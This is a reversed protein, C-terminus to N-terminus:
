GRRTLHRRTVTQLFGFVAADTLAKEDAANVGAPQAALATGLATHIDGLQKRGTESLVAPDATVAEALEALSGILPAFAAEKLEASKVGLTGTGVGAGRLVPSIEFVDLQQLERASKNGRQVRASKLTQFGFSWEQVPSGTKLDFALAAHWDKGAQTDLNLTFDAVAWDGEEHLWAKGFPMAQKNHAPIIQVWQGGGSKWSFAGKAYTDGDKDIASLQAIRARGTGAEDMKEITISKIQM